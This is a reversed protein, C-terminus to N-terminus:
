VLNPRIFTNRLCCCYLLWCVEPGVVRVFHADCLLRIGVLIYMESPGTVRKRM